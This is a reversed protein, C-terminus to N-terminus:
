GTRTDYDTKPRLVPPHPVSWVSFERWSSTSSRGYWVPAPHGAPKYTVAAALRSTQGRGASGGKTSEAGVTKRASLDWGTVVRILGKKKEYVIDLKLRRGGDKRGIFHVMGRSIGQEPSRRLRKRLHSSAEDVRRWNPRRNRHHSQGASIANRRATSTM